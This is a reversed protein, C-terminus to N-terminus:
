VWFPSETWHRPTVFVFTTKKRDLGLPKATSKTYDDHAKAKIAQRQTGKGAEQFSADADDIRGEAGLIFGLVMLARAKADGKSSEVGRQGLNSAEVLSIPGSSKLYNAALPLDLLKVVGLAARGIMQDLSGVTESSSDTNAFSSRIIVRYPTTLGSYLTGKAAQDPNLDLSISIEKKDFSPILRALNVVDNISILAKDLKFVPQSPAGIAINQGRHTDIAALRYISEIRDKIRTALERGLGSDFDKFGRVAVDDIYVPDHLISLIGVLIAIATSVIAVGGITLAYGWAKKLYSKWDIVTKPPPPSTASV